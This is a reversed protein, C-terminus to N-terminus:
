SGYAEPSGAEMIIGIYKMVSQLWSWPHGGTQKWDAEM